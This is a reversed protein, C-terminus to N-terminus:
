PLPIPHILLALVRDKTEYEASGHGDGYQYMCQAMRALNMAIEIYMKSFPSTVTREKNFKKWTANILSRIYKQADEESIGTDNMYCQISKPADGRELEDTSTVLDNALRLIMSSCRIINPYEELFDCSEETIPNTVAFYAHVLIVPVSSSVWANETYEQFSPTYSNYYWKAELLFAKCLDVWAKKLYRINNFGKEKLTEFAMENITNHLSLFCQQMYYPLKETANADWREVADTFLELEDLTGYVDYVDDITTILANVKTLVRRNYGLRPQFSVGVTWLFNEMLRDRALSLDGLGTRRWWNSGEKLDDQHVAQVMNFDLEALELLISSMDERSRYVDIFWRVELRPMRWHLPLELAHNVRACLNQDNSKNVYEKLHKTAFERAEEMISEGEILIFSAEYLALMGEIDDCLYEKFNGTENMLNSFIEQPANYGNQRLLRFELATTYLSEKCVDGDHTSSTNCIEKLIRRIDDEFHYSVGLRQLIDVLDLQKRPESVKHFMMTVEGKLETLKKTYSVGVYESKLSQIYDYHWITPKYNASRRVITSDSSNQDRSAM